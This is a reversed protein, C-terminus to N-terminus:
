RFNCDAHIRVRRGLVFVNRGPLLEALESEMSLTGARDVRVRSRIFGGAVVVSSSLVQLDHEHPGRRRAGSGARGHDHDGFRHRDLVPRRTECGALQSAFAFRWGLSGAAVGGLRDRSSQYALYLLAMLFIAIDAEILVQYRRLKNLASVPTEAMWQRTEWALWMTILFLFVGWHTLYSWIPTHSATWSDVWTYGQNYTARYPEYLGYSLVILLVCAGIILALKKIWTPIGKSKSYSTMWSLNAVDAYNWIAYALAALALPLYTYIDSLNTPYLAGISLGGILFSLAASKKNRWRRAGACHVFGM